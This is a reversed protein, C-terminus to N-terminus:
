PEPAGLTTQSSHLPPWSGQAWCGCNLKSGLAMAWGLRGGQGTPTVTLGDWLRPPRLSCPPTMPTSGLRGEAPPCAQGLRSRPLATPLTTESGPWTVATHRLGQKRPQNLGGLLGLPTYGQSGMKDVLVSLVCVWTVRNALQVTPTSQSWWEQSGGLPHMGSCRPPPLMREAWCLPAPGELCPAGWCGSTGGSSPLGRPLKRRLLFLLCPGGLWLVAWPDGWVVTWGMRGGPRVLSGTAM